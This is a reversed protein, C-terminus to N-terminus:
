KSVVILKILGTNVTTKGNVTTKAQLTITQSGTPSGLFGVAGCGSFFLSMNVAIVVYLFYKAVRRMERRKFFLLFGGLLAPLVYLGASLIPQKPFLMPAPMIGGSGSSTSITLVTAVTDSSNGDSILTATVYDPPDGPSFSCTVFSPMNDCGLTVTGVYSGPTLTLTVTASNGQVITVPSPSATISYDSGPIVLSPHVDLTVFARATTYNTTDSPTFYTEIVEPGANSFVTGITPTFTFGNVGVGGAGPVNATPQTVPGGGSLALTYPANVAAPQAWTIVPIAQAIADSVTGSQTTYNGSLDTFSWADAAYTGATTHTTAGLSFGGAALPVAGVGTASGVATHPNTDYIVSYPTVTVSPVAQNITDSVTGSQTIYNGSADTFSWPDAAYTGANTRATLTFGLSSLPAGGLGTASVAPTHPTADYTVTYPTVTVSAAIQNITDTITGSQTAYNGSGDTFSWSDSAYVGANTHAPFTFGLPSLPAGGLGTASGSASHPNGDYSVTYPTVTVSPTAQNITLTGTNSASSYNSDSAVSVTITHAGANLSGTAYSVSCSLPSSVGSCSAALTTGADVQITVAGSPATPGTYAVSASLTTPTGGYTNSAPTVTVVPTAQNITLTGTNSAAAYNTDSALSATITHGGGTLSGTAYSVTCSLPSSAGSCSATLTTGADVQITVAGSPATPGTYAVPATLTTPTAGYTNSAPTVTVVPTAQNITLTGTNSAASYNTDSALSAHITHSGGTLSDTTYSVTCTLPSSAGSCSATLTSGSDVQITVAGSPASSGTYTVSATLTTPTVGYTNSAPTVTVTPTAQNITLTGTNSSAVYNTDSALSATITHSGGTLSGTAYSVTCSLPSSAGSCSATLTTGSDVQITVAGSPATSGPYVVSATLTTPTLAYTNSAPTVTVTPTAQNITLTGTNSAAIYNTDSALSATITHAATTLAGTAYSVTCSLPSSAGTCIATLTSGSDVQITVAGSPASPGTYGVSATLTTPTAGYSNSAPTVTVTPTAQNTTLMGTNSAAIYNTDSALSAHITHSGGTLSGTAYSVTCSLPSSAGSCIATLTTGSDVQITVAGSPATSGTYTVSATLTTPTVGYTNSAPTVTVTPTAKNVALAATNSATAYNTDSALLATITHSGTTLSGTVYSVTCSLPSSAGTCTATLTTGSDVQITVAGSPASPGTYAVSSTLTTPTDGYFIAVPTVTVVPTAKNVTLTNTNSEALYNIDSALSATITHSGGTLSGTAYSVTCNLPSSAGSCSATLTTGSDVQITVAGSPASPGTYTVSASLTTPTVGYTITATSVAVVPTAQNVTLTNTNSEALYNIDSALSASITHSGGTLNRTVYSATCTLPSSAGVCSATMTVGADVQITVAGSPAAYGTYGVLATLTTPSVGYTITATNVTVTPTAQNITLTSANSASNYDADSAITATISHIGGTLQRTNYSATCTLPSSAGTCSVAMPAGGSVVFTMLGSPGIPGFYDVTATLTTPSDGYIITAPNVTVTPTQKISTGNLSVTQTTYAAGPANLSNDTVIMQESLVGVEQPTFSLPLLCNGASALTGPSGAGASITPCDLGGAGLTFDEAISPNNGSGPVPFTLMSNGANWLTLTQPSDTSTYFIITSNFNLTPGHSQDVKRVVNNSADAIYLDGAADLTAGLPHLRASTALGSNGSYGATGTGAITYIDGGPLFKRVIFKGADTVYLYGSADITLDTPNTLIAGIAPIGDGTSGGSTTGAVTTIVGSVSVERVLGNGSDSFYLNGLSDFVINGKPASIKALTAPGNDGSYGATGTGVVTTILGTAVDVKRIRNGGTDAIYLNGAEDLGMGQPSNLQANLASVGDASSAGGGAVRSFVHNLNLKEIRNDNTDAIYVTGTSDILLDDPLSVPSSAYGLVTTISGDAYVRRIRSTSTDVVYYNGAADFAVNQPGSLEAQVAPNGDGITGAVGNGSDTTITGPTYLAEPSVGVGSLGFYYTGSSAVVKLPVQRLGPYAPAFSVPVVCISGDPVTTSGNVTCGTIAGVTYESPHGAPAVATISSITQDGNVQLLVNSSSSTATVQTDLYSTINNYGTVARVVNNYTDAVVISGGVGLAFGYPNRLEANTPLGGDGTYGGNYLTGSGFGTGVVTTIVGTVADIRRIRNNLTDAVFINGLGDIHLDGPMNLTANVALMYDGNFTTAGTGAITTIIHSIANVCRIRNDGSDSIYLNGAADFAVGVPGSLGASTALGLDGGNAAWGGATTVPNTGDGAVTTINGTIADIRRVRNNGFDAFYLDGAADFAMGTPNSIEASTAAGADGTFGSTGNGAFTTINGTVADIRRIRNNGSDSVFLNGHSDFVVYEPFNLEASTALGSDGSYGPTGNGAFLTIVGTHADVRRIVSNAVDAFYINGARDVAVSSPASLEASTAPGNNGTYGGYLGASTYPNFGNGAVTNIVPDMVISGPTSTVGNGTLQISQPSNTANDNVVLYATITNTFPPTFTIWIQCASNAALTSGCNTTYSFASTITGTIAISSISMPGNSYNDLNVQQSSGAVNVQQNVFNLQSPALFASIATGTGTLPISQPSGTADDAVNLTASYSGTGPPTFTIGMTCSSNIALTAGCNQTQIAFAGPNAGGITISSIHLTSSGNNTLTETWASSTSYATQNGFTLSSPTLLAAPSTAAASGTLPISQPSGAANDTVVLNATFSGSSPATFTIQISCSSNGALTGGCTTTKSFASANTGTIAISSITVSGNSSNTLNVTQSGTAVGVTANPFNLSSPALFANLATGTGTLPISQPSGTADDAVNLTASYGTAAVPSFTISITCSSNSALTGSCTQSQIAFASPNTGGITISTIHLTGSGNNTLTEVWPSSTSQVSQNGFTLSSPTLLAAPTPAVASGTLPISQPSSASNDTAVLNASFSGGSPATFTVQISCSSNGALTTGCNNTQSFNAANTGTIAISSITIAGNSSNTLNVNQSGTTVGITANPFNLSSPALFANLATGTGTLPITHPSGSANDAVVLTASYSTAAPPTFTISITCSNNTALTGGCTQSQIAFAGPNAGGITIASIILAANGNNTLTATWPSSTSLVSQNGFTLNTPTLLASPANAFGYQAQFTLAALIAFTLSARLSSFWRFPSKKKLQPADLIPKRSSESCNLSTVEGPILVNNSMM